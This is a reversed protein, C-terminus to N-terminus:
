TEGALLNILYDATSFPIQEDGTDRRRVRDINEVALEIRSTLQKISKRNNKQYAPFNRALRIRNVVGQCDTFPSDTSEFHCLIWYEFCPSSIAFSCDAFRPDSLATQLRHPVDADVVCFVRDYPDDKSENRKKIAYKAVAVPDSQCEPGCVEVFTSPTRFYLRVEDWYIPETRSGECVILIKKRIRRSGRKRALERKSKARRSM